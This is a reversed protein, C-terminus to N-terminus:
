VTEYSSWVRVAPKSRGKDQAARHWEPGHARDAIEDAAQPGDRRACVQNLGNRV